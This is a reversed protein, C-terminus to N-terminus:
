RRGVVEHKRLACALLGGGEYKDRHAGSRSVPRREEAHDASCDRRSPTALSQGAGHPLCPDHGARTATPAATKAPQLALASNSLSGRGSGTGAAREREPRRRRPTSGCTSSFARPRRAPYRRARHPVLWSMAAPRRSGERRSGPRRTEGGLPIGGAQARARRGRGLCGGRGAASSAASSSSSGASVSSGAVRQASPEVPRYGAPAPGSQAASGLNVVGLCRFRAQTAHEPLAPESATRGRAALAGRGLRSGTIERRRARHYQRSIM